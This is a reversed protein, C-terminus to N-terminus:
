KWFHNLPGPRCPARDVDLSSITLFTQADGDDDEVTTKFAVFQRLDGIGGLELAANILLAVEPDLVDDGVLGAVCAAHTVIDAVGSPPSPIEAQLARLAADGQCLAERAAEDLKTEEEHGKAANYAANAKAYV